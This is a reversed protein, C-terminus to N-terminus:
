NSLLSLPLLLAEGPPALIKRAREAYVIEGPACHMFACLLAGARYIKIMCDDAVVSAGGPPDIAVFDGQAAVVNFGLKELRNIEELSLPAFIRSEETM